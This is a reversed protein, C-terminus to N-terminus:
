GYLEELQKLSLPNGRQDIMDSFGLKGQSWLKWKGEGLIAKQQALPQDKLWAEYTLDGSVPGGMSARQGQPIKDLERALRTNGGADRALEEWTKTVPLTQSRCGWHATPGPYPMEHGIPKGDMDWKLGDLARCQTTTRSDLTSLWEIGGMIDANARYAELHAANATSLVSTRVLAEANRRAAWIPGRNVVPVKRLDVKGVAGVGPLNQGLVRGKLQSITEGRLMGQRITDM